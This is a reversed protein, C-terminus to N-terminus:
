QNGEPLGNTDKEQLLAHPLHHICDLHLASLISLQLSIAITWKVDQSFCDKPKDVDFTIM